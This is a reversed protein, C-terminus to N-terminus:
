RSFMSCTINVNGSFLVLLVQQNASLILVTLINRLLFNVLLISWYIFIIRCCPWSSSVESFCFKNVNFCYRVIFGMCYICSFYSNQTNDVSSILYREWVLLHHSQFGFALVTKTEHHSVNQTKLKSGDYCFKRKQILLTSFLEQRQHDEKENYFCDDIGLVTNSVKNNLLEM